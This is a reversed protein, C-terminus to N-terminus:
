HRNKMIKFNTQFDENYVYNIFYIYKDWDWLQLVIVRM